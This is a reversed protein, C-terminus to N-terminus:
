SVLFAGGADTPGAESATSKAIANDIEGLGPRRRIRSSTSRDGNKAIAADALLDVIDALDALLM